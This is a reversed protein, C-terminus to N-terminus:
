DDGESDGAQAARSLEETVKRVRLEAGRLRELCFGILHSAREVKDALEDVDIGSDQEIKALISDIESAADKYNLGTIDAEPAPESDSM